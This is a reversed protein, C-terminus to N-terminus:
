ETDKSYQVHARDIQYQSFIQTCDNRNLYNTQAKKISNNKGVRRVLRIVDVRCMCSGAFNRGFLWKVRAVQNMFCDIKMWIANDM